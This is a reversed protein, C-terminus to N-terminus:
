FEDDSRFQWMRSIMGSFEDDSRSTNRPDKRTNYCEKTRNPPKDDDDDDDDNDADAAPLRTKHKSHQPSGYEEDSSVKNNQGTTECLAKKVASRNLM